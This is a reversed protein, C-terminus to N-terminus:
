KHPTRTKKGHMLNWLIFTGRNTSTIIDPAGDGNPDAFTM